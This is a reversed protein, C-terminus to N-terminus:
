SGPTGAWEYGEELTIRAAAAAINGAMRNAHHGCFALQGGASLTVVLRAAASCADCRDTLEAVTDIQSPSLLTPM